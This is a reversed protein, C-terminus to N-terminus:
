ARSIEIISDELAEIVIRERGSLLNRGPRLIVDGRTEIGTIWVVGEVCRIRRDDSAPVSLINRRGLREYKPVQAEKKRLLAGCLWRLGTPAVYITQM